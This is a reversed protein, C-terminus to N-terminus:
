VSRLGATMISLRSLAESSGFADVLDYVSPAALSGTLAFRIPQALEPLPMGVERCVQKIAREVVHRDFQAAAVSESLSCVLLDLAKRQVESLGKGYEKLQTDTVGAMERFRLSLEHLTMVRDQYLKVLAEQQAVSWRDLVQQLSRDVDRVMAALLESPLSKKIYVTNLWLLKAKDFIAGTVGVGALTFKQQLDDKSFVEQDGFSWGLRILYNCLAEPLIGEKQYELVSVANTRKSLKSGDPGLILPLHAFEPMRYSCLRYLIMQRPTNVLHEEGRIVHTVRMAADDVVVAFNYMPMGDSRIIIFDDITETKFAIPGRILDNVVIQAEARPVLCRIVHAVGPREAATRCCGDYFMYDQGPQKLRTELEEPTCYCRYAYGKAVLEHAVQQYVMIRDSQFVLPEDPALGCWSFSALISDTFETKSRAVDTDEIRLLFTGGLHRAFYWNFLAARLGGIHLHGTPSPAFRVRVSM